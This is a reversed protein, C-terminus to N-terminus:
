FTAEPLGDLEQSSLRPSYEVAVQLQQMFSGEAKDVKLLAKSAATRKGNHIPFPWLPNNLQSPKNTM